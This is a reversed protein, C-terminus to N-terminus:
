HARWNYAASGNTKGQGGSYALSPVGVSELMERAVSPIQIPRSPMVPSEVPQAAQDVSDEQTGTVALWQDCAGVLDFDSPNTTPKTSYSPPNQLQTIDLIPMYSTSALQKARTALWAFVTAGASAMTRYKVSNKAGGLELGAVQDVLQWMDKAGYAAQVEGNKLIAMVDAIEKQLETAMPYAIGYGHSSINTALDRGSKRVQQQTIAGPINSRLLNDVTNQRVFSSVASVFRMFQDKFERNPSDADGGPFGLARAYFGRREPESVRLAANKWWAFLLNGADGRVVPLIGNQFLEVLKEVVQFVKLEELMSCFYAPQLAFINGTIIEFNSVDQELNPLDIDIQSPPPAQGVNQAIALMRDIWTNIQPNNATIGKQVLLDVVKAWDSVDIQPTQSTKILRDLTAGALARNSRFNADAAEVTQNFLDRRNKDDPTVLAPNTRYPPPVALANLVYGYIAAMRMQDDTLGGPNLGNGGPFSGPDHELGPQPPPGYLYDCIARYRNDIVNAKRSGTGIPGKSPDVNFSIGLQQLDSMNNGAKSAANFNPVPASPNNNLYQTVLELGDKLQNIEDVSLNGRREFATLLQNVQSTAQQFAQTDADGLDNFTILVSLPVTNSFTGTPDAYTATITTTGFARGTALGTGNVTAVSTNSSSWTAKATVDQTSGDSYNATAIFQRTQGAGVSTSTSSLAISLVVPPPITLVANGTMGGFTGSITAAGVSVGTALGAANVTAIAPASSVWVAAATLDRSAGDSYTGTATFQQAQGAAVSRNAPTVAISVLVAAGVTLVSNGTVGTSVASITTLGAAVGTALGAQNITATGAASSTWTATATLDKNTGDSYAGMATFQQTQGAAVSPNVPTVSISLLAAPTVRIATSASMGSSAATITATGVAVGTALGGSNISALAPSSSSWIATATLDKTSGDSCNATATFQQTQGSAVSQNVPTVAISTMVAPNVTLSSSANVAGWAATITATGAAVSTALGAANITAVGVTSSSWVVSTSVDKSSGDSYVGSAAFQQQQGAVISANPPNVTISVLEPATVIIEATDRLGAKTTAEIRGVGVLVATALGKPDVTVAKSHPKWYVEETVNRSGDVDTEIASLQLTQGTTLSTHSPLVELRLRPEGSNEHNGIDKARKTAHTAM